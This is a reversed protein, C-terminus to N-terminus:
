ILAGLQVICHHAIAHLGFAILYVGLRPSVEFGRVRKAARSEVATPMRRWKNYQLAAPTNPLRSQDRLASLSKRIRAYPSAPVWRCVRVAFCPYPSRLSTFLDSVVSDPLPQKNHEVLSCIQRLTLKKGHVNITIRAPFAPSWEGSRYFKVAICFAECADM